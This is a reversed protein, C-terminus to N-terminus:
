RRYVDELGAAGISYSFAKYITDRQASSVDENRIYRKASYEGKAKTTLEFAGVGVRRMIDQLSANLDEYPIVADVLRVVTGNVRESYKEGDIPFDGRDCYAAWTLERASRSGHINSNKLMHFHSICKSVPEREVCFKFMSEFVTEGLFTRILRAPMHNYFPQRLFGRQWNRPEHEKLAPIVPTVIADSGLRKSLEAEISTGATKRTKVFIFKHQHSIIAV